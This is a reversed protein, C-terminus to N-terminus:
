PPYQISNQSISRSSKNLKTKFKVSQDLDIDAKVVKELKGVILKGNSTTTVIHKDRQARQLKINRAREEKTQEDVPVKFENM